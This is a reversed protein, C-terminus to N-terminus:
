LPCTGVCSACSGEGHAGNQELQTVAASRRREASSNRPRGISAPRRPERAPGGACRRSQAALARVGQGRVRAKEKAIGYREQL